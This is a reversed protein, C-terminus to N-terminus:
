IDSDTIKRQTDLMTRYLGHEHTYLEEPSGIEVVKGNDLAVIKDAFAITRMRHAIILVTKERILASIARQIESENEVDQSATAEDLIIIIPADKLFARAISIRQREGGSLRSGNEGIITHYGNSLENVFSDCQAEKAAKLVEEDTADRRGIRINDLISANFLVVDQFVISYYKLLTEPDFRTLEVGGLRICGRDVDWFRSALRACTSKGGGSPGILATIEGQKAVLSVDQLIREGEEYSFHVNEFEIDYGEPVIESNGEQPKMDYIANMRDIKLRAFILLSGNTLVDYLPQYIVASLLFFFLLMDFSVEGSLYLYSGVIILSPLGLRVFSGILNVIISSGMEMSIQSKEMKGLSSDLEKLYREQQCNSLVTQVQSFGEDIKEKVVLTEVENKKFGRYQLKRSIFLLILSIPVVWLLSLALRWDCFPLGICMLITMLVAGCFQPLMHTYFTELFTVDDLITSTVDSANRKDYFSLPIKRLHEALTIRMSASEKYVETYTKMYSKYGFFLMVAIMFVALLSLNWLLNETLSAEKATGGAFVQVIFLYVLMVPFLMGLNNLLNWVIARKFTHVGRESMALRRQLMGNRKKRISTEPSIKNVTDM